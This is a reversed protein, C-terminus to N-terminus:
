QAAKRKLLDILRRYRLRDAACSKANDAQNDWAEDIGVGASQACAAEADGTGAAAGCAGAPMDRGALASNWMRVGLLTVSPEAVRLEFRGQPASAGAAAAPASGSCSSAVIPVGRRRLNRFNTDLEAYRKELDQQDRHAADAQARADRIGAVLARERASAQEVRTADLKHLEHSSGWFFGYTVGGVLLAAPLVLNNLWAPTM